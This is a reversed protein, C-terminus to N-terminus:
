RGGDGPRRHRLLALAGSVGVLVTVVGFGDGAGGTPRTPTDTRVATSTPTDTRATTPSSTPTPTREVRLTITGNESRYYTDAVFTLPSRPVVTMIENAGPGAIRGLTGRSCAGARRETLRSPGRSTVLGPGTYIIDVPTGAALPGTEAARVWEGDRCVLVREGLAPQWGRPVFQGPEPPAVSESGDVHADLWPGLEPGAVAIVDTRFREYTLRERENLRRYVDELTRTNDTAERIRRDLAALVRPGRTQADAYSTAGTLAVNKSDLTVRREFEGWDMTGRNYPALAMYYFASSEVFWEMEAATDFEQRTHLFEHTMLGDWVADGRIVFSRDGGVGFPGSYSGPVVFMTTNAPDGGVDLTRTVGALTEVTEAAEIDDRAAASVVATLHSERGTAKADTYEGLLVYEDTAYGNEAALQVRKEGDYGFGPLLADDSGFAWTENIQVYENADARVTYVFEPPTGDGRWVWSEDSNRRFGDAKEVTITVSEDTEGTYIGFASVTSDAFTLRVRLRDPGARSVDATVNLREGHDAAPETEIGPHVGSTTADAAVAPGPVVVVLCLM